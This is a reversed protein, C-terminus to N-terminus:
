CWSLSCMLHHSFIVTHIHDLDFYGNYTKGKDMDPTRDASDCRM